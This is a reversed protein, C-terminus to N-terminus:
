LTGGESSKQRSEARSKICDLLLGHAKELLFYISRVSMRQQSAIEKVPSDKQYRAWVVQRCRQPLRGLCHVLDDRQDEVGCAVGAAEDALAMLESDELSLPLRAQKRRWNLTCFRAISMAWAAFDTGEEFQDFKRWLVMSVEQLLDESGQHNHTLSYVFGYIRHRNAILLQSFLEGREGQNPSAAQEDKSPPNSM